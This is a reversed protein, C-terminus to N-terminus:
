IDMFIHLPAQWLPKRPPLPETVDRDDSKFPGGHLANGRKGGDGKGGGRKGATGLGVIGIVGRLGVIDLHGGLLGHGAGIRPCHRSRVSGRQGAGIGRVAGGGIGAGGGGGGSGGGFGGLICGLRGLLRHSGGPEARAPAAARRSRRTARLRSATPPRCRRPWLAPRLRASPPSGAARLMARAPMALPGAGRNIKAAPETM